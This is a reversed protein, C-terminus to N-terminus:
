PVESTKYNKNKMMGNQYELEQIMKELQDNKQKKSALEEVMFRAEKQEPFAQFSAPKKSKSFMAEDYGHSNSPFSHQGLYQLAEM